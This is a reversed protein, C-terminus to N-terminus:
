KKRLYKSSNVLSGGLSLTEKTPLHEIIFEFEKISIPNNLYDTEEQTM